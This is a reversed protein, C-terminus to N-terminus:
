FVNGRLVSNANDRIWNIRMRDAVDDSTMMVGTETVYVDTGPYNSALKALVNELGEPNFYTGNRFRSSM